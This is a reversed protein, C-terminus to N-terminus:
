FEVARWGASRGGDACFIKKAYRPLFIGHAPKQPETTIIHDVKHTVLAKEIAQTFSNLPAEPDLRFYYVRYGKARLDKAFHRMASFIFALKKKHHKVYNAEATVECMLIIDRQLDAGNLSSVQESLQDGLIIRLATL